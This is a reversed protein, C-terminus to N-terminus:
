ISRLEHKLARLDGLVRRVARPIKKIPLARSAGLRQRYAIPVERYRMGLKITRVVLETPVFDRFTMGPRIIRDIVDRRMLRLGCDADHVDIGFYLRLTFNFSKTLAQRYIQDQRGTKRGVVLDADARMDYLKWFDEPEHKLGGDCICVWDADTALLADTWARRYGKRESGGFIRFGLEPQLAELVARTADTSGDEAIVVELGPVKSVVVEYLARLEEEISEAENHALLIFSVRERASTPSAPRPSPSL